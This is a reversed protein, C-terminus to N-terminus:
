FSIKKGKKNKFKGLLITGLDFLYWIGFGGLTFLMLLGTKIKKTYFRHAGLMGFFFSLILVITFEKRKKNM